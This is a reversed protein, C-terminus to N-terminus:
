NFNPARALFDIIQATEGPAFKCEEEQRWERARFRLCLEQDQMWVSLSHDSAAYKRCTNLKMLLAHISAWSRGVHYVGQATVYHFSIGNSELDLKLKRNQKSWFEVM